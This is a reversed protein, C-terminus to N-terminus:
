LKKRMTLINKGDRYEYSVHDMFEKTMYIGLGGIEREEASLTVDPDEKELPNYPTGSDAFSITAEAPDESVQVRVSAKGEKPAYAYNAINVFIEEAAVDIEMMTKPTCPSNELHQEIFSLVEPLLAVRADVVLEHNQSSSMKKEEQQSQEPGKYKLCLMTLDDFQEADKVFNDVASRVNKLLQEPASNPDENLAELMRDIGFMNNEADTAEPVGDTYLFLESGPELQLEYARYKVGEMGGVVFGHIDKLLEFGGDPKKLVPYEHGANSATLKGTSLELIGLWITIFMEEPNNSCVTENTKTLVEAASQGMKANSQLIIKSIMMFMAAPIGKGSVDAMVICLHDEDILFFDYFDGGVEKAPTVTAFVDFEDKDPFPPFIHPMMSMQIRTALSLEAAIRENKSTVTLLNRIYANMDQEMQSLSGYLAGIEDNSRITLQKFIDSNYSEGSQEAEVLQEAASSLMRIPKAITRSSFYIMLALNAVTVLLTLWIMRWLFTHLEQMVDNMLIDVGVYGAPQGTSTRMPYYVSMLWGFEENSVIPPIREGRAMREANEAFAGEYYPEHYGLPIAGETPDTDLVYWVEDIEPKVVYLYEIGGHKQIDCLIDYAALYEEDPTGTDLYTQIKDPNLQSAAVEAINMAFKEYNKHMETKYHYFSLAILVLSLFLAFIIVMWALKRSVSLKVKENKM